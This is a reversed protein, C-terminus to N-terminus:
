LPAISTYTYVSPDGGTDDYGVLLAFGADPLFYLSEVIVDGDSVYTIKGPLANFTCAGVSLSTPQGWVQSQEEAYIDGYANITTNVQWTMGAAPVPLDAANDPYATNAISDPIVKGNETDSLQLVHVGQALLTRFTYGDTYTGTQEVVGNGLDRFIHVTGDDEGVQIGSALDGADPCDALAPTSLLLLALLSRM